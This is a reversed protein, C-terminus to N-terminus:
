GTAGVVFLIVGIEFMRIKQRLSNRNTVRSSNTDTLECSHLVACCLNVTYVWSWNYLTACLRSVCKMVCEQGLFHALPCLRCVSLCIIGHQRLVQEFVLFRHLIYRTLSCWFFMKHLTEETAQVTAPGWPGPSRNIHIGALCRICSDGVCMVCSIFRAKPSSITFTFWSGHPRTKQCNQSNKLVVRQSHILVGELLERHIL